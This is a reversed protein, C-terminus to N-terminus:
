DSSPGISGSAVEYECRPCISHTIRPTTPQGLVAHREVYLEIEIWHAGDNCRGCWACLRVMAADQERATTRDLLGIQPRSAESVLRSVFEVEGGDRATLTLTFWRRRDPADCRFRVAVPPGGSRARQVLRQWVERTADDAIYSWLTRDSRLSCLEPADNELAFADWDLGTSIVVDDADICYSVTTPM